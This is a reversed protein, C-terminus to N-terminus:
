EETVRNSERRIREGERVLAWMGVVAREPATYVPICIRRYLETLDSNSVDYVIIPRKPFNTQLRQIEPIIEEM